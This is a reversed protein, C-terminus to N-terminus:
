GVGGGCWVGVGVVFFGGREASEEVVQAFVPDFGVGVAVAAEDGVEGLGEGGFCAGRGVFVAEGGCRVGGGGTAGGGLRVGDGGTSEPHIVVVREAHIGEPGM